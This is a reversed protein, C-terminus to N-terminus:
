KTRKPILVAIYRTDEVFRSAHEFGADFKVAQGARVDFERHQVRLVLRGELVWQIQYHGPHQHPTQSDDGAAGTGLIVQGDPLTVGRRQVRGLDELREEALEVVQTGALDLLNAASLGFFGALVTLTTLSPLNQNGEIRNLTSFSVGTAQALEQLTVGAQQRLERLVSFDYGVLLETSM